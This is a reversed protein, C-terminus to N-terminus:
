SRTPSRSRIPAFDLEFKYGFGGPVNGEVGLRARRAENGFGEPRGTSNPANIFGADYQLRGRPKFSWGGKGEIEPAGHWSISAAPEAKAAETAAAASATAAGAATTAAQAEAKAADLQAQLTDIREAMAAMQARMQALEQAVDASDQAAAPM